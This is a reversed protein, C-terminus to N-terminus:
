NHICEPSAQQLGSATPLCKFLPISNNNDSRNRKINIITGLITLLIKPEQEYDSHDQSM